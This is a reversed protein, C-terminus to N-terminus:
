QNNKQMNQKKLVRTIVVTWYQPKHVRKDFNTRPGRNWREQKAINYCFGSYDEM